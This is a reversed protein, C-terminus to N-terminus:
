VIEKFKLKSVVICIILTTSGYILGSVFDFSPFEMRTNAGWRKAWDNYVALSVQQNDYYYIPHHFFRASAIAVAISISFCSIFYKGFILNWLTNIKNVKKIDLKVQDVTNTEKISIINHSAIVTIAENPSTQEIITTRGIKILEEVHMGDIGPISELLTEKLTQDSIEDSVRRIIDIIKPDNEIDYEDDHEENEM